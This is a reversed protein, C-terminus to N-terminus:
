IIINHSNKYKQRKKNHQRNKSDIRDYWKQFEHTTNDRQPLKNTTTKNRTDDSRALFNVKTNPFDTSCNRALHICWLMFNVECVLYETVKSDLSSYWEVKKQIPNISLQKSRKNSIKSPTSNKVPLFQLNWVTLM